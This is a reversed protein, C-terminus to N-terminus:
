GLLTVDDTYVLLQYIGSFKLGEQIQQVKSIAHELVFKFALLSVNDGKKLDNELYKLYM